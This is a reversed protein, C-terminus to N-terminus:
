DDQADPKLESPKALFTYPFLEIGHQLLRRRIEAKLDGIDKGDLHELDTDEDIVATVRLSAEGDMDTYNEVILDIVKPSAPLDLKKLDLAERIVDTVAM